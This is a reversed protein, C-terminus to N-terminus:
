KFFVEATFFLVLNPYLNIEMWKKRFFYHTDISTDWSNM